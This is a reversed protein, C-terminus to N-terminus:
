MFIKIENKENLNTFLSASGPLYSISSSTYTITNVIPITTPNSSASWGSNVLDADLSSTTNASLVVYVYAPSLINNTISFWNNTVSNRLYVTHSDFSASILSPNIPIGFTLGYVDPTSYNSNFTQLPSLETHFAGSNATYYMDFSSNWIYSGFLIKGVSLSASGASPAFNTSGTVM